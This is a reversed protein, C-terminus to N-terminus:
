SPLGSRIRRGLDNMKPYGGEESMVECLKTLSETNFNACIHDLLLRNAEERSSVSEIKNRLKGSILNLKELEDIIEETNVVSLFQAEYRLAFLKVNFEIPVPLLVVFYLLSSPHLKSIHLICLIPM